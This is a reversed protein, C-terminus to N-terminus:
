SRGVQVARVASGAMAFGAGGLIVLPLYWSPQNGTGGRASLLGFLLMVVGLAAGHVIPRRRSLVATVYGGLAAFAFTYSINALLYPATPRLSNDLAASGLMLKAAVATAIGVGVALILYGAVVALVTRM